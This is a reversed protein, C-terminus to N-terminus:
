FQKSYFEFKILPCNKFRYALEPTSMEFNSLLIGKAFATTYYYSIPHKPTCYRQINKRTRCYKSSGRFM